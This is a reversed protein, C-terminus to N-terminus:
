KPLNRGCDCHWNTGYDKMAKGCHLPVKEPKREVEGVALAAPELSKKPIVVKKGPREAAGSVQSLVVEGVQEVRKRAGLWDRLILGILQNRNRAELRAVEDLERALEPEIRLSTLFTKKEKV